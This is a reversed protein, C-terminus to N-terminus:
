LGFLVREKFLPIYNQETIKLKLGYSPDYSISEYFKNTFVDAFLVFFFGHDYGVKKQKLIGISDNKGEFIGSNIHYCYGYDLDYFPRIYKTELDKNRFKKKIFLQDIGFGFESRVSDNQSYAINCINYLQYYSKEFLEYRTELDYSDDFLGILSDFEPHKNSDRILSELFDKSKITIFPNSNCISITPLEMPADYIKQIKSITEFKLYAMFSITVYYLCLGCSCVLLFLWFLRISWKDTRFLNPYGHSTSSSSLEIFKQKIQESRSLVHNKSVFRSEKSDIKNTDDM